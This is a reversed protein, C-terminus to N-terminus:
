DPVPGVEVTDPGTVGVVVVPTGTKLEQGSATEAQYEMTRNQVKVTVKGVGQKAAPITLYVTAMAGVAREIHVNGESQLSHLFGMLWAVAIMAVAGAALAIPFSLVALAHSSSAAMGGLGFFTVAAVMSRFSLAHFYWTTGHEVHADGGHHAGFEIHHDVGLDHDGGFGLLTMGFQCLLIVGGAVACVLFITEM